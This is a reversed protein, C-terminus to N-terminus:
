VKDGPKQAFIYSSAIGPYVDMWGNKARDWPPTAIRVNLMIERGEAPYSAMSYAREVTEPNKMVLPWLNFKDWEAQFKDPTDHEEPHPTIDIDSYKIECQAIEIQFYGGAKYGMDEPIELVFETLFSAGNYNIVVTAEWKKIGFVG